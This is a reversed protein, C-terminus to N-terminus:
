NTSAVVISNHTNTTQYFVFPSLYNSYDFYNLYFNTFESIDESQFLSLEVVLEASESIVDLNILLFSYSLLINRFHFNSITSSILKNIFPKSTKTVQM